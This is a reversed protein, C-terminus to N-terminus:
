GHELCQEMSSEFVSCPEDVRTPVSLNNLIHKSRALLQIGIVIELCNCQLELKMVLDRSPLEMGIEIIAIGSLEMSPM